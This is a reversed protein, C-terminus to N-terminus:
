RRNSATQTLSAGVSGTPSSWAVQFGSVPAGSTDTVKVVLLDPLAIGPKGTQGNGSVLSMASATPGAGHGGGGCAAAIAFYFVALKRPDVSDPRRPLRTTAM